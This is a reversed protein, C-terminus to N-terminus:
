KIVLRKAGEAALASRVTESEDFTLQACLSSGRMRESAFSLGNNKRDLKPSDIQDPDGLLVIKTGKGARTIIELIQGVTCNQAEDVIIFSDVLSRGRMYALSCIEIVGTEFMDEIQLKIQDKEENQGKLLVQLNDMFPAILPGMKEELDGPLFGLDNDSLTNSRTIMIRDFGNHYYGQLGAALALFTKATGASGKLIVLPIEDPSAFLSYLAFRQGVNRPQCYPTYYERDKIMKWQGNRFTYLASGSASKCVAFQNEVFGKEEPNTLDDESIDVRGTYTDGDVIQENHYAQVKCGCISANIRMSVDNTVLITEDPSNEEIGRVANIIRNDPKEMSFEAPILKEFTAERAISFTGGNKLSIPASYDGKLAEINRIAERAGYGVDGYATKKSDLEQLTTTTVIVNNDDFGFIASPCRILINTDLVYNKKMLYGRYIPAM